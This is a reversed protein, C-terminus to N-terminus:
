LIELVRPAVDKCVTVMMKQAPATYLRSDVVTNRFSFAFGV